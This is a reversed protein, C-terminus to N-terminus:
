NTVINGDKDVGITMDNLSNAFQNAEHNQIIECGIQQRFCCWLLDSITKQLRKLDKENVDDANLVQEYFARFNSEGIQEIVYKVHEPKMQYFGKQHIFDTFSETLQEINFTM